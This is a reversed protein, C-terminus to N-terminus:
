DTQFESEATARNRTSRRIPSCWLHFALALNINKRRKRGDRRRRVKEGEDWRGSIEGREQGAKERWPKSGAIAAEVGAVAPSSKRM